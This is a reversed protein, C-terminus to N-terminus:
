AWSQVSQNLKCVGLVMIVIVCSIKSATKRLTVKESAVGQDVESLSCIM